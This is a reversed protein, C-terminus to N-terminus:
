SRRETPDEMFAEQLSQLTSDKRKGPYLAEVDLTFHM